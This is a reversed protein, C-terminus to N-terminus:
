VGAVVMECPLIAIGNEGDALRANVIGCFIDAVLGGMMRLDIKLILVAQLQLFVIDLVVAVIDQLILNPPHRHLNFANM